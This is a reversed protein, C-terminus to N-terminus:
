RTSQIVFFFWTVKKFFLVTKEDTIAPQQSRGSPSSCCKFSSFGNKCMESAVIFIETRFIGYIITKFM